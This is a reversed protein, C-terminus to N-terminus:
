TGANGRLGPSMELRRQEERGLRVGENWVRRREREESTVADANEADSSVIGEMRTRSAGSRFNTPTARARTPSAYAQWRGIGHDVVAPPPFTPRSRAPATNFLNLRPRRYLDAPTQPQTQPPHSDNYITFSDRPPTSPFARSASGQNSSPTRPFVPSTSPPAMPSISTPMAGNYSVTRPTASFPPPLAYQPTLSRNRTSRPIFPVAYPSLSGHSSAFPSGPDSLNTGHSISRHEEPEIPSHQLCPPAASSRGSSMHTSSGSAHLCSHPQRAKSSVDLQSVSPLQLNSSSRSTHRSQSLDFANGPLELHSSSSKSTLRSYNPSLQTESSALNLHEASSLTKAHVVQSASVPLRASISTSSPSTPSTLPRPMNLELPTAPRVRVQTTASSAESTEFSYTESRPRYTRRRRPPLSLLSPSEVMRPNHQLYPVTPSKRPSSSSAAQSMYLPSRPFTGSTRQVSDIPLSFNAQPSQVRSRQIPEIVPSQNQAIDHIMSTELSTSTTLHDHASGSQGVALWHNQSIESSGSFEREHYRHIDSQHGDLGLGLTDHSLTDEVNQVAKPRRRFLNSFRGNTASQRISEVSIRTNNRVVSGDVNCVSTSNSSELSSPHHSTRVLDLVDENSTRDDKSDNDSDSAEEILVGTSRNNDLWEDSPCFVRGNGSGTSRTRTPTGAEALVKDWFARSDHPVPDRSIPCDEANHDSALIKFSSASTKKKPFQAPSISSSKTWRQSKESRRKPDVTLHGDIRAAHRRQHTTKHFDLDKKELSIRSLNLRLM